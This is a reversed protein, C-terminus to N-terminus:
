SNEITKNEINKTWFLDLNIIDYCSYKKKINEYLYRM